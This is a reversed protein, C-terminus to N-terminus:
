TILNLLRYPHWAMRVNFIPVRRPQDSLPPQYDDHFTVPIHRLAACQTKLFALEEGFQAM